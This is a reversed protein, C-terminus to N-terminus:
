ECPRQVSGHSRLEIREDVDQQPFVAILEVQERVLRHGQHLVALRALDRLLREGVLVDVGQEDLHRRRFRRVVDIGAGLGLEFVDRVAAHHAHADDGLHPPQGGHHRGLRSGSLRLGADGGGGSGGGGAGGGGAGGGGGWGLWRRAGAGAASLRPAAGGAPRGASKAGPCYWAASRVRPSRSRARTCDLDDSRCRRTPSGGSNRVWPSIVRWAPGGSLVSWSWSISSAM